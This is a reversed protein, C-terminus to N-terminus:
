RALRRYSAVAVLASALAAAASVTASAIDVIAVAVPNVGGANARLVGDLLLLPMQALTAAGLVTGLVLGLSLGTGRSLEWARRLAAIAGIPGENAFVPGLPLLRGSVYLAVLLWLMLGIGAPFLAALTMVPLLPFAPLASALLLRPVLLLGRRLAVALTPRARADYLVYATAVGCLAVGFALLLWPLQGAFWQAVVQAQAEATTAPDPEPPPPLLLSLALTPLLWFPGALGLLLARDRRFLTGADRFLAAIDLKM